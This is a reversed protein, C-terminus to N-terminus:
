KAIERPATMEAIMKERATKAKGAADAFDIVDRNAMADRFADPKADAISATLTAFSVDIQADTWNAAVDGLKV